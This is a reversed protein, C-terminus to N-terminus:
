SAENKCFYVIDSVFDDEIGIKKCDEALRKPPKTVEETTLVWTRPLFSSVIRHKVIFLSLFWRPEYTGTPIMALDFEGFREGIEKFAPGTEEGRGRRLDVQVVHRTDRHTSLGVLRAHTHGTPAGISELHKANGLLAFIHPVRTRKFLTSLTYNNAMIIIPIVVADVEPMDEIKCPPATNRKPGFSQTPSCMDSFVPHLLVLWTAKIEGQREEETGWMSTRVPIGATGVKPLAPMGRSAQGFMSLMDMRGEPRWSPWPNQYWVRKDSTWHAPRGGKEKKHDEHVVRIAATSIMAADSSTKGFSM